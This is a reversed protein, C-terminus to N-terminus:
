GRFCGHPDKEVEIIFRQLNVVSELGDYRYWKQNSLIWYLHWEKEKQVWTAKAFDSERIVTPDNWQPRIEFLIVSQREIRWGVDLQSRFHEPPRLGEILTNMMTNIDDLQKETFAM